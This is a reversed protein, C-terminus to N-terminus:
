DRKVGILSDGVNGEDIRSKDGRIDTNELGSNLQIWLYWDLFVGVWM